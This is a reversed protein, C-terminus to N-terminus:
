KGDPFYEVALVLMYDGPSIINKFKFRAELRQGIELNSVSISQEFSSVAIIDVGLKDRCAFAISFLNCNDCIAVEAELIITIEELREFCPSAGSKSGSMSFRRIRVEGSGWRRLPDKRGSGDIDLLQKSGEKTDVIKNPVAPSPDNKGSVLYEMYQSTVESTKGKMRIEGRDLWIAWKCFSRVSQISHSVFLVTVGSDMLCKMRSICKMQFAADGVALAEDIILIDPELQAQVAFTLRVVMGSSYTKVPHDIFEGIDAFEAIDNFKENIEQKSLGLVAGNLYINERGTFEPNFGSGLELLAAGKGKTEINGTTPTLTGAIIQLLTSKGSGNRGIIGVCEGCQIDFSIDNLAWFEKYFQRKGRSLTQWLRHFPKRYMEYCKGINKLSIVVDNSCM